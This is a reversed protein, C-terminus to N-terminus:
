ARHYLPKFRRNPLNSHAECLTHFRYIIHIPTTQTFIPKAIISVSPFRITPHICQSAQVAEIQTRLNRSM